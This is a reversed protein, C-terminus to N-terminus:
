DNKEYYTLLKKLNQRARFLLSEVSSLSLNMVETIEQYSLGEVKSLIFATKQNEPLKGIAHFLIAAKEKNELKVGPHDFHPIDISLGDHSEEDISKLWAFRKKRKKKRLFDLSSTVSIRYIWTSLKSNGEFRSISQHIIVLVEQTLDEADERNQVIGLITNYIRSGHIKFLERYANENGNKLLLVLELENM